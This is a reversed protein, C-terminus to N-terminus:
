CGGAFVWGLWFWKLWAGAITLLGMAILSYMIINAAITASPTPTVKAGLARLCHPCTVEKIFETRKKGAAPALGCLLEETKRSDVAHVHYDRTDPKGETM